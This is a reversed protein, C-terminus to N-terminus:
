PLRLTYFCRPSNPNLTLSFQFNGSNDFSNTAIMSWQALPLSMNTTSLVYYNARPQGGFGTFSLQGAAPSIHTIHPPPATIIKITGSSALSNLDWALSSGPMVPVINTFSGTPASGTFLQFSDSPALSGSLNTLSLTGGCNLTGLAQVTDCTHATKNLKMSVTGNLTANNALVLHGIISSSGPAITSGLPSQLIGLVTGSGNLTQGSALALTQDARGTADLTAGSAITLIPSAALSVANSLVLSGGNIITNGTYSVNSALVLSGSGNKTLGGDPTSGLSSDHLLPEAFVNTKGNTDIIAGGIRVVATIPIVPAVTSGQFFPATSSNLRLTGGNFNFTASPGHLGTAANATATGVKSALIVGGNLNVTGISGISNGNANRSLDLTGCNLSASGSITLTGTGRSALYFSGSGGGINMAGGTLNVQSVEGSNSGNAGQFQSGMNFTGGSQNIIGTSNPSLATNFRASTTLTGNVMNFTAVAGSLAGIQNDQPTNNPTTITLTPASGANGYNFTGEIVSIIWPVTMGASTSNDVLTWNASPDALTIINTGGPSAASKLLNTLIGTGSLTLTTASAAGMTNTLGNGIVLTNSAAIFSCNGGFNLGLGVTQPNPSNNTINGVLTIPNGTLQFAGAGPNFVINSYATGAATDNVPTLRNAGDFQLSANAAISVGNWNESDTWNDDSASGGNWVLASPGSLSLGATTTALAAGNTGYLTLTYSGTPTSTTTSVTLTSNGAGSLTAPNFGATAGSPLGSLGFSVSGSFGSNTAVTVTYSINTSGIPASQSSPAVSIGYNGVVLNVTASNSVTGSVGSIVLPYTGTPTAGTTTISLTSNTSTYILSGLNLSNASFSANAGSPLGSVSLTVTNSFGGWPSVALTFSTGSGAQIVRSAPAPAVAFQLHRRNKMWLIGADIDPSSKYTSSAFDAGALLGYVNTSWDAPLLWGSYLFNGQVGGSGDVNVAFTNTGLYVVNVLTNGFPVLTPRTFGYNIRNFARYIGIIDYEAHIETAESGSTSTPYYGWNYVLQGNAMYQQYNTIATLCQTVSAKVIADYQTVRGPNDGLLEHAEALRQFGSTFMMQRNNATVNENLATWASNSPPVILSTGPQIFWKLFYEDNSEDCKGLYNTARQLYTVGYGYPNGDPVTVNWLSPNQLILKACFALHGIVDETECGCYLYQNDTMDTPWNPCWVKDILGTWMVRQGGNASSMLDNRQSVCYDSWSIMLNLISVDGSVQFMEGMAELDRGGTGDAWANHGTGGLTGWPTQPPTQGQMYTKFSNIENQTVPGSLSDIALSAARSTSLLALCLTATLLACIRIQRSIRRPFQSGPM